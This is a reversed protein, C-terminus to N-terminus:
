RSAENTQTITPATEFPDRWIFHDPEPKVPFWRAFARGQANLRREVKIAEAQLEAWETRVAM